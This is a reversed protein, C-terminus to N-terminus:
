LTWEVRSIWLCAGTDPSAVAAIGQLRSERADPNFRSPLGTLHRRLIAEPEMGIIGVGSGCMGVDTIYGCGGPLIRADATPVHTHTGFVLSVRGDAFHALATKEGTAEAHFDVVIVRVKRERFRSIAGDLARFPSDAPDMFVQGALNVVGVPGRPTEFITEGSGPSTVPALNAPRLINKDQDLMKHAEAPRFTHNGGTLVQVGAARMKQASAPLMGFGNANEGNAVVLDPAGAAIIGPLLHEIGRVGAPGVVDGFVLIKLGDPAEAFPNGVFRSPM